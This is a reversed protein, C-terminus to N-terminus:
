EARAPGFLAQELAGLSAGQQEVTDKVSVVDRAGVEWLESKAVFRGSRRVQGAVEMQRMYNYVTAWPMQMAQELDATTMPKEALLKAVCEIASARHARREANSMRVAASPPVTRAGM